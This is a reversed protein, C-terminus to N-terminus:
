SLPVIATVDTSWRGDIFRKQAEIIAGGRESGTLPHADMGVALLGRDEQAHLDAPGAGPDTPSQDLRGYVIWRARRPMANFIAPRRAPSPTSCSARSRPEQVSRRHRPCLQREVRQARRAAGAQRLMEPDPRRPARHRDPSLGEDKAVNMILKCLQSAAATMIFAKEGEARVIDFMALATLPNVIM